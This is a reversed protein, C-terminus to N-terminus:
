YPEYICELEKKVKQVGNKYNDIREKVPKNIKALTVIYRLHRIAIKAPQNDHNTSGLDHNSARNDLIDDIKDGQLAHYLNNRIDLFGTCFNNSLQWGNFCYFRRFRKWNRSRITQKKPLRYTVHNARDDAYGNSVLHLVTKKISLM